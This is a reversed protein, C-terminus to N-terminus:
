MEFQPMGVTGNLVGEAQAGAPLLLGLPRGM